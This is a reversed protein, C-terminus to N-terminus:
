FATVYRCLRDKTLNKVLDGANSLNICEIMDSTIDLNALLSKFQYDMDNTNQLTDPNYKTDIWSQLAEIKNNSLLYDWLASNSVNEQINPDKASIYLETCLAQKVNQPLRMIDEICICSSLGNQIRCYFCLETSKKRIALYLKRVKCFEGMEKKMSHWANLSIGPQM